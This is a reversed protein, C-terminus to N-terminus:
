IYHSSFCLASYHELEASIKCAQSAKLHARGRKTFIQTKTRRAFFINHKPTNHGLLAAWHIPTQNRMTKLMCMEAKTETARCVPNNRKPNPNSLKAPLQELLEVM